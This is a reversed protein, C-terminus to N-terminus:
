DGIWSPEVHRPADLGTGWLCLLGCARSGPSQLSLLRQLSFGASRLQLAAGAGQLWLFGGAAVFVWRLWFMFLCM